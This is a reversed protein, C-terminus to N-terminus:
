SLQYSYFYHHMSYFAVCYIKSQSPYSNLHIGARTVVVPLAKKQAEMRTIRIRTKNKCRHALEDTREGRSSGPNLREFDPEHSTSEHILRARVISLDAKRRRENEDCERRSFIVVYM